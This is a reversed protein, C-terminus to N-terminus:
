SLTVGVIFKLMLWIFFTPLIAHKLRRFFQSPSTYGRQYEKLLIAPDWKPPLLILTICLAILAEIM